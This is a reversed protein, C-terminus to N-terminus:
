QWRESDRKIASIFEAEKEEPNKLNKSFSHATKKTFDWFRRLAGTIGVPVTEAGGRVGHTTRTSTGSTRSTKNM